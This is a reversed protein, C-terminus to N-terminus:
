NAYVELLCCYNARSKRAFSGTSKKVIRVTAYGDKNIQIKKQNSNGENNTYNTPRNKQSTILLICRIKKNHLKLNLLWKLDEMILKDNPYRKIEVAYITNETLSTKIYRCNDKAIVIDTRYGKFPNKKDLKLRTMYKYPVETYLKKGRLNHSILNVFEGIIAGETLYYKSYCSNKYGLWFTIGQMADTLLKSIKQKKM